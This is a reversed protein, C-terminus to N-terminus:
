PGDRVSLGHIMERSSETSVPPRSFQFLGLASRGESTLEGFENRDGIIRNIAEPSKLVESIISRLAVPEMLPVTTLPRPAPQRDRRPPNRSARKFEPRPNKGAEKKGAPAPDSGGDVSVIAMANHLRNNIIDTERGMRQLFEVSLALFIPQSAGAPIDGQLSVPAPTTENLSLDASYSVCNEFTGAGFDASVACATLRVHTAGPPMWVSESPNFSAFYIAFSNTARDISATYKALLTKDLSGHCNFNFGKLLKTHQAMIARQGEPHITDAHIVKSLAGALRSTVRSDAVAMLPRFGTRLLKGARAAVAFESAHGRTRAFAPDRKVRAGPISTRTRAFYGDRTKYFSLNGINGTFLTIGEQKAM